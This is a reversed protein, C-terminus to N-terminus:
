LVRKWQECFVPRNEEAFTKQFDTAPWDQLDGAGLSIWGSAASWISCAWKFYEEHDTVFRVFGDAKLAHWAAEIFDPQILRHQAHRRKPWPDPFLIHLTQISRPPALYRLFYSTEIRLVKLNILGLREAKRVIKRARGLLREIALFNEKPYRRAMEIAFGGDGAGADVHVPADCGFLAIWDIPKLISLDAIWPECPKNCPSETPYGAM